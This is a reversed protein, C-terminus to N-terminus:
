ATAILYITLSIGVCFLLITIQVEWRKQTVAGLGTEAGTVKVNLIWELGGVGNSLGM